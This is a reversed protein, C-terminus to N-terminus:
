DEIIFAHFKDVKGVRRERGEAIIRYVIGEADVRYGAEPRHPTQHWSGDVDSWRLYGSTLASNEIGTLVWRLAANLDTRRDTM